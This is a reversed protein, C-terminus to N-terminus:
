VDEMGVEGSDFAVKYQPKAKNIQFENAKIVPMAASKVAAKAQHYLFQVVGDADEEDEVQAWLSCSLELSEYNGLNFKRSYSISVTGIKM